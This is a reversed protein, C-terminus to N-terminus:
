KATKPKIRQEDVPKVIVSGKHWQNERRSGPHSRTPKKSAFKSAPGATIIGPTEALDLDESNAARARKATQAKPIVSDTKKLLAAIQDWFKADDPTLFTTATGSSGARGTRGVRHIYDEAVQPLDFNIVHGVEAVDIGRAAIDTAVLVRIKGEKFQKLATSRNGQSRGGHLRNVKVGYSELYDAVSETRVQTKTFVLVTGKKENIQDLLLDRKLSETTNLLTQSVTGAAQSVEGAAVREHNPRLIKKALQDIAQDWTASFLLTQRAKPTQGIIETLQAEFGMDLMRDAEDLILIGIHSLKLSKNQLLDVLRGPTAIILRPNKELKKIQGAM